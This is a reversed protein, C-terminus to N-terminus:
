ESTNYSCKKKLTTELTEFRCITNAKLTPKSATKVVFTQIIYAAAKKHQSYFFEFADKELCVLLCTLISPM